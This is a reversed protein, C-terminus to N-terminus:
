LRDFYYHSAVTNGFVPDGVGINGVGTRFRWFDDKVKVRTAEQADIAAKERAIRNALEERKWQRTSANITELDM